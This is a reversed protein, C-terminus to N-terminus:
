LCQGFMLIGERLKDAGDGGGGGLSEGNASNTKRETKKQQFKIIPRSFLSLSPRIKIQSM